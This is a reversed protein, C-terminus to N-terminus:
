LSRKRRIYGAGALLVLAFLAYTSPEPVAVLDAHFVRDFGDFGNHLTLPNMPVGGSGSSFATGGAYPAATNNLSIFGQGSSDVDFGYLTNPNLHIPTDFQWTVWQPNTTGGTNPINVGTAIETVLVSLNPTSDITGVRIDWQPSTTGLAGDVRALMTIASLEYGGANAGTTFSQGHVPRNSWVHGIPGAIAGPGLDDLGFLQSIDAGDVVPAIPSVTMIAAFSSASMVLFIVLLLRPKM